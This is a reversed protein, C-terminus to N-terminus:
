ILCTTLVFVFGTFSSKVALIKIIAEIDLYDRLNGDGSSEIQARLLRTCVANKNELECSNCGLEVYLPELYRLFILVITFICMPDTIIIKFLTYLNVMWDKSDQVKRQKKALRASRMLKGIMIATCVILIMDLNSSLGAYVFDVSFSYQMFQRAIGVLNNALIDTFAWGLGAAIVM